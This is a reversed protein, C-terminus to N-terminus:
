AEKNVDGRGATTREGILVSVSSVFVVYKNEVNVRDSLERREVGGYIKRSTTGILEVLNWECIGLLEDDRLHTVVDSVRRTIKL